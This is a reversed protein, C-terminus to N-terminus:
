RSNFMGILVTGGSLNLTLGRDAQECFQAVLAPVGMLGNTNSNGAAWQPNAATGRAIRVQVQTQAATPGDSL